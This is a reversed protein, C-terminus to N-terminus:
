ERIIIVRILGGGDPTDDYYFDLSKGADFAELAEDLTAHIYSASNQSKGYVDANESVTWDETTGSATLTAGDFSKVKGTLGRLNRVSAVAGGSFMFKAPGVSVGFGGTFSHSVGDSIYGYNRSSSDTDQQTVSTIIGYSGCDGTADKLILATVKGGSAEHFLVEDASITVGSLRQVSVPVCVGEYTDLIRVDESLNINGITYLDADVTGYLSGGFMKTVSMAKDTFRLKVVDGTKIWTETVPYESTEGDATVGGIYASVYARGSANTYTKSGTETVYLVSSVTVATSAVADAVKGDRGFLLTVTMGTRLPGGSSLAAFAAASEPEYDAGSVTVVSPDNQSPTAKEYIGTRKKDYVWLVTGASNCYVIDYRKVDSLTTVKGNKYVTVGASALGLEASLASVSQVTFPGSMNDGLATAYDVEGSANLKLGITEAYKQDGDKVRANLLNYLIQAADGMTVVTGTGGGVGASLGSARFASMQAAPFGGRFDAATYGLLKLAADAAQEITLDGSPRFGGDSYGSMLGNSVALKIYPAAAHSAPVDKFVSAGTSVSDKYPSVMVLMRAFEARTVSAGSDFVGDNQATIVGIATLLNVAGDSAAFGQATGCFVLTAAFLACIHKKLKM